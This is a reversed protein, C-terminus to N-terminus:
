KKNESIIIDLISTITDNKFFSIPKRNEIFGKNKNDKSCSIGIGLLMILGFLKKIM